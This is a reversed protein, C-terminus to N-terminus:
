RKLLRGLEPLVKDLQEAVLQAIVAAGRSELHTRDTKGDKSPPNFKDSAESGLENHFAVSRAFLDVVPVNKDRGVARAAEAYPALEGVIRGDKFVRRTYSTVLVPRAGIARAEDVYRALNERFTTAPDTERAPGKGPMDNHGFQILIYDPKAALVGAWHGEDRFSKSSRGGLAFNTCVMGPGALQRFGPGWGSREAVTSDGVLAVTVPKVPGDASTAPTSFLILLAGAVRQHWNGSCHKTPMVCPLGSGQSQSRFNVPM